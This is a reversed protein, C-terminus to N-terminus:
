IESYNPAPRESYTHLAQITIKARAESHHQYRRAEFNRCYSTMVKDAITRHGTLLGIRETFYLAFILDNAEDRSQLIDEEVLRM